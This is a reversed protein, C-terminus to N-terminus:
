ELYWDVTITYSFNYSNIKAYDYRCEYGFSKVYWEIESYNFSNWDSSIFFINVTQHDSEIASNIATVIREVIEPYNKELYNRKVDVANRLM